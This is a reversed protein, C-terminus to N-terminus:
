FTISGAKASVIQYGKGPELTFGTSPLWKSGTYTVTGTTSQIRDGATWGASHTLQAPTVSTTTPNSVWNWGAIVSVTRTGSYSGSMAVTFTNTVYVQYMKGYDITFSGPLWSAGTFRASGGNTQVIDNAVFNTKGLVDGIKHSTPLTYVGIWNWGAQLQIPVDNPEVGGHLSAMCATLIIWALLQKKMNM